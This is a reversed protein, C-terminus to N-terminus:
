LTQQVEQILSNITKLLSSLKQDNNRWIDERDRSRYVPTGITGINYWNLNGWLTCLWMDGISKM